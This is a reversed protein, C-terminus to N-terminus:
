VDTKTRRRLASPPHGTERRFVRSFHYEDAFGVQAAITKLALPTRLILTEAAEVRLRRLYNMPTMGTQKRFVRSFYFRSISVERALDDLTLSESIHARVFRKIRLLLDSPQPNRTLRQFEFFATHMLYDLVQKEEKGDGPVMDFIWRLQQEIRGNRDFAILPSSESRAADDDVEFSVFLTEMAERGVSREAHPTQMPYWLVDGKRGRLVQGAIQTEIQGHVVLIMEHFSQHVHHPFKWNNQPPIRGCGKLRLLPGNENM